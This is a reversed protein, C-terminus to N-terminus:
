WDSPLTHLIQRTLFNSRYCDGRKWERESVREAFPGVKTFDFGAFALIVNGQLTINATWLYTRKGEKSIKKEKNSLVTNWNRCFWSSGFKKKKKQIQWWSSHDRTKKFNQNLGMIPFNPLNPFIFLNLLLFSEPTFPHKKHM